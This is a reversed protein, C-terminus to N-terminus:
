VEEGKDKLILDDLEYQLVNLRDTNERNSLTDLNEMPYPDKVADKICELNMMHYDDVTSVKHRISKILYRGSLYPDHDFPNDAGVPEYAPMEFAILDGCSVGTFGPVDIGINFSEFALKQSLRKPVNVHYEPAEANNHMKKTDTFFYLTGDPYDSFTTDNRYNFLPLIGKNDTKNGQGDHETHFSKEYETSYDFDTEKFTKNFLDHSVARANYIGNRLNKLTDFQSNISFGQVTQMEKIINRNGMEDRINAPSPRYLAVVPRAVTNTSALLSEYSKCQFGLSNEYFLMGPTHHLKSVADRALLDIAEFPRVRPMVYKHIGKTEELTLTKNSDLESRVISLISNDNSDEFARAVRVQENRIMEKSTFHLAYIQTRPNLGQRDSIKYIHMPHGTEATFDFARSTGPTFLKFEIQEFGTLPLHNPINQADTVVINGSLVKNNLSEYINIETVLSRISIKKPENRGESSQFSTLVVDSLVYQGAQKLQNTNIENYM